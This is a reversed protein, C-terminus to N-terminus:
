RAFDATVLLNGGSHSVAVGAWTFNGLLAARHSPSEMFQFVADAASPAVAVDEGVASVNLGTHRIRDFPTSGDSGIHPHTLVYKFRLMDLTHSRAARLVLPQMVLPKLSHTARFGNMLSLTYTGLDADSAGAPQPAVAPPTPPSPDVGHFIRVNFVAYGSTANIEVQYVGKAGFPLRASFHTGTVQLPYQKVLGSPVTVILTRELPTSAQGHLAASTVSAGSTIPLGRLRAHFTPDALASHLADKGEFNFTVQGEVGGGAPNFLYMPMTRYGPAWAEVAIQKGAPAQMTYEGSSNAHTWTSGTGVYAGPVARGKTDQVVGSITVPAASMGTGSQARNPWSHPAIWMMAGAAVVGAGFLTTRRGVGRRSM